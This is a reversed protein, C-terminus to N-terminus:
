PPSLKHCGCNTNNCDDRNCYCSLDSEGGWDDSHAGRRHTFYASCKDCCKKPVRLKTM